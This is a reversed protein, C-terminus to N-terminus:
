FHLIIDGAFTLQSKKTGNDFAPQSYAHDFRIEPRVTIAKTPWYTIGISNETYPTAFGTRQGKIDDYFESRFSLATKPNFMYEMYNLVGWEPAYGPKVNAPLASAPVGKEYMYYTETATHLKPNFRHTWTTVFMQLNNYAYKGDNISNMCPYFSDNGSKTTYQICALPTFKASDTWIATDNGASVGGQITWEKNLKTTSVVGMQTYPDVTYLISHSYMYNDPALQAEIDPLSIYRGVRINMGQAIQPIFLDAYVMVPDYGYKRNYKNLQNSFIGNMTTYRYDTGYLSDFRFGWDIHDRQVTDPLREFRLIAQDLLIENAYDDYAIPANARGSKNSTSLNAGPDLWGYINIRSAKLADGLPTKYLERMLLGPEISNDVGIGPSGGLQYQSSPFPPSSLMDPAPKPEPATQQPATTAPMEGSDAMELSPQQYTTPTLALDNGFVLGMNLIAALILGIVVRRNSM